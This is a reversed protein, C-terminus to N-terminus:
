LIKAFVRTKPTSKPYLLALGLPDFCPFCAEWRARSIGAALQSSVATFALVRLAAHSAEPASDKKWGEHSVPFRGIAHSFL